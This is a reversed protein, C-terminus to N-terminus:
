IVKSRRGAILGFMGLALLGWSEPEPVVNALYIVSIRGKSLTRQSADANGGSTSLISTAQSNLEMAFAGVGEFYQTNSYGSIILSDEDSGSVDTLRVTENPQVVIEPPAYSASPIVDIMLSNALGSATIFAGVQGEEVVVGAAGGVLDVNTQAEGELFIQVSELPADGHQSPDYSEVMVEREWPTAMMAFEFVQTQVVQVEACANSALCVAAVVAVVVIKKLNM